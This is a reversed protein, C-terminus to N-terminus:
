RNNCFYPPSIGRRFIVENGADIVSRFEPSIAYYDLVDVRFPLDSEMFDEKMAGVVSIGVKEKGKVALDLDSTEENTWKHRSGFALVDGDPVHKRVIDLIIEMEFPSVAIM